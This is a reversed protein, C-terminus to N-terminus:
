VFLKLVTLPSFTPLSFNNHFFDVPLTVWMESVRLRFIGTVVSVYDERLGHGLDLDIGVM